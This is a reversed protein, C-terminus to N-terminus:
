AYRSIILHKVATFVQSPPLSNGVCNLVQFAVKGPCEEDLDEADGDEEDEAGISFIADIIQSVLNLKQIRTRNVDVCFLLFNLAM